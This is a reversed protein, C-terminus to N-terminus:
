LLIRIAVIGLSALTAYWLGQALISARRMIFEVAYLIVGVEMALRINSSEGFVPLYAAALLIFMVLFDSTTLSFNDRGSYRVGIALFGALILFFWEAYVQYASALQTVDTNLTYTMFIACAYAVLRKLAASMTLPVLRVLAGIGVAGLSLFAMDVSLTEVKLSVLILFTCTALGVMYYPYRYLWQRRRLHHVVHSLWSERQAGEQDRLRWRLRVGLPYVMVTAMALGAYSGLIAWGSEYRLFYAAVVFLSHILYSALVAEYHDFGLELLKHHFHTKDPLFPSRGKLLRQTMVTLTDIIPLGLILLPLEPALATNAKQTLWIALIGLSFGLFQSGADGMFVMAPHTNYRLFGLISGGIALSVLMIDSAEGLSALASICVLSLLSLGGALGDLGDSLNMANTMGLLFFVTLPLSVWASLSELGDFSLQTILVHGPVVVTLVALIQGLFKIKYNLNARDDWIGFGVIILVGLLFAKLEVELGLWAWVSVVTGLVMGIGGVRPIAHAHIKRGDPLDVLKWRQAARMLIAVLVMAVFLATLFVSYFLM